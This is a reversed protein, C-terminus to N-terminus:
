LATKGHLHPRRMNLASVEPTLPRLTWARALLMTNHVQAHCKVITGRLGGLHIFPYLLHVHISPTVRCHVLMEGPPCPYERIHTIYTQAAGCPLPNWNNQDYIPYPKPVRTNLHNGLLLVWWLNGIFSPKTNNCSLSIDFVYHFSPTLSSTKMGWRQSIRTVLTVNPSGRACCMLTIRKWHPMNYWVSNLKRQNNIWRCGLLFAKM